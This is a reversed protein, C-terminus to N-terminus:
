IPFGADSPLIANPATGDLLFMRRWRRARMSSSLGALSSGASQMGRAGKSFRGFPGRLDGRRAQASFRSGRLPQLFATKAEVEGNPLPTAELNGILHRTRSPPDEAWAMGTDLRAVRMEFYCKDEEFAALDGLPTLERRLERRSVNKRRPMFYLGDDTFLDLQEKLRREDLLWAERIYFQILDLWLAQQPTLLM